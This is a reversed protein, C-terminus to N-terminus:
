RIKLVYFVVWNHIFLYNHKETFIKIMCLVKLFDYQIAQVSNCVFTFRTQVVM